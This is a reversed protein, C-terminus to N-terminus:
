GLLWVVPSDGRAGGAVWGGSGDAVLSTVAVGNGLVFASRQQGDGVVVRATGADQVAVAVAEGAVALDVARGPGLDVPEGDTTELWAREDRTTAALVTDDRVGLSAVAGALPHTRPVTVAGPVTVDLWTLTTAGAGDVTAVVLATRAGTRLVALDAVTVPPGTATAPFPLPVDTAVVDGSLVALTVPGGPAAPGSVAFSDGGDTGLQPGGGAAALEALVRVQGTDRDLGLVTDPARTAALLTGRVELLETPRGAVPAAVGAALPDRDLVVLLLGADNGTLAHVQGEVLALDAVPLSGPLVLLRPARPAADDGAPGTCGVLLLAAALALVRRM